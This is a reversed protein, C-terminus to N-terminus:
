AFGYESPTVTGHFLDGLPANSSTIKGSEKDVRYWFAYSSDVPNEDSYPWCVFVYKGDNEGLYNGVKLYYNGEIDDYEHYTMLIEKAEDVTKM